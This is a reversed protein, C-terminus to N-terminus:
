SQAAPAGNTIPIVVKIASGRNPASDMEITGKHDMVIRRAIALGLGMGHVKSTAFPSFVDKLEDEAMGNGDDKFVVTIAGNESQPLKAFATSITINGGEKIADAANDIINAFAETLLSSDVFMTVQDKVFHKTVKAKKEAIKAKASILASEIVKHIDASKPQPPSSDAFKTLQNIIGNLRDIESNVIRYFEERFESDKYRQPLLQAFTKISVLPNKVEHAMRSAVKSWFEIREFDREKQELAKIRSLDAFAMIAGDIAGEEDHMASTSVGLPKKNLPSLAERRTYEKEGALTRLLLDAFVSGIKEVKQGVIDEKEIELIEEATGNLFTVLGQADITVIGTRICNLVNENHARSRAIDRYLLANEIAMALYSCFISLLEIDNDFFGKGTAKPGIAAFGILKGKACLGAVVDAGLSNVQEYLEFELEGPIMRALLIQNHKSLWVPLEDVQDFIKLMALEKPYGNCSMLVYKGTRSDSLFIAAKSASFTEVIAEVALDLLKRYDFVQSIAKAFRRVVERYFCQSEAPPAIADRALSHTAHTKLYEIKNLLRTREIASEVIEALARRDFLKELVLHAGAARVEDALPSHISPVLVIIPLSKQIHLLKGVAEATDGDKICSDLIAFDAPHNIITKIGDPVTAANRVDAVRSLILHLSEVLTKDGSIVVGSAM